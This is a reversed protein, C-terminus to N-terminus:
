QSSRQELLTRVARLEQLIEASYDGASVEDMGAQTPSMGGRFKRLTGAVIGYIEDYNVLGLLSEEVGSQGSMGATQIQLTGLGLLRELPGRKIKINTVTRFPVHKVSKTIVGAHVIIEDAQIEYRLSRYYAGIMLLAPIIWVLNSLGSILMGTWGGQAGDVDHGIAYGFGACGIMILGGWLLTAIAIALKLKRDPYLVRTEM